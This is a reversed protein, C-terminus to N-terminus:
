RNVVFPRHYVENAIKIELMLWGNCNDPLDLRTPLITSTSFVEQGLQNLLRIDAIVSSGPLDINLLDSAPQPYLRLDQSNGLIQTIGSSIDGGILIAQSDGNEIFKGCAYFRDPGTAIVSYSLDIGSGGVYNRSLENGEGDVRALLIDIPKAIDKSSSYGAIIFTDPSLEAISFGADSGPAPINKFYILEGASTFRVLTVDFAPVNKGNSEGVVLFDGNSTEIMSQCGNQVDDGVMLDWVLNGENDIKFCYIDYDTRTFDDRKVDATIVYGDSVTCVADAYDNNSFGYSKQWGLDGNVDFRMVLIDNQRDADSTETIFGTAIFGSGLAPKINKVSENLSDTGFTKKWILEGNLDTCVLLVDTQGVDNKVEGCFVLKNDKEILSFGYSNLGEFDYLKEWVENGSANLKRLSCKAYEGTVQVTGLM